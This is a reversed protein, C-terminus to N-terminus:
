LSLEWSVLEFLFEASILLFNPQRRKEFVRAVIVGHM